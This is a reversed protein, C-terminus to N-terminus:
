QLFVERRKSRLLHGFDHVTGRVIPCDSGWELLSWPEAQHPESM